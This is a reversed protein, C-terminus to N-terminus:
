TTTLADKIIELHDFALKPLKKIDFWKAETADDDGKVENLSNIQALYAFTITRSRPDRNVEDYFNFFKLQNLDLSMGTEEQLERQCAQKVPEDTDIFGGPLAWSDEFPKSERNILLLYSSKKLKAFVVADVTVYIQQSIPM